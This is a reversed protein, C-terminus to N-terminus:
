RRWTPSYVLGRKVVCLPRLIRAVRFTCNQTCSILSKLFPLTSGRQDGRWSRVVVLWTVRLIVFLFFLLIPSVMEWSRTCVSMSVPGMLAAAHRTCWMRDFPPGSSETIQSNMELSPIQFETVEASMLATILYAALARFNCLFPMSGLRMPDCERRAPPAMARLSWPTESMIMWFCPHQRETVKRCYM